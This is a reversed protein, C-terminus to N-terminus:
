WWRVIRNRLPSVLGLRIFEFSSVLQDNRRPLMTDLYEFNVDLFREHATVSVARYLVVDAKQETIAAIDQPNTM